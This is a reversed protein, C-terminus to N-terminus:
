VRCVCVCVCLRRRAEEVHRQAEGDRVLVFVHARADHALELCSGDLLALAENKQGVLNVDGHFLDEDVLPLAGYRQALSRRAVVDLHLDLAHLLYTWDFYTLQTHKTGM